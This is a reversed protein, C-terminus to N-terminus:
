NGFKDSVLAAVERLADDETKGVKRSGPEGGPPALHLSSRKQLAASRGDTRVKAALQGLAIEVAEKFVDSRDYKVKASKYGSELINFKEKLRAKAEDDVSRRLSEDLGSFQGEFWDAAQASTGAKRLSAIEKRAEKLMTGMKNFADVLKDDYDEDTPLQPIDDDAPDDAGEEAGKGEDTKPVPAAKSELSACLREFMEKSPIAKADSISIGARVAREIMADDPTFASHAPDRGSKGGDDADANINEEGSGDEPQETGALALVRDVTDDMGSIIKDFDESQTSASETNEKNKM